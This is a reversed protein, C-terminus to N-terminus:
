GDLLQNLMRRYGRLAGRLEETSRGADDAASGPASPAWSERLSARAASVAEAFQANAQELLADAEEVSHRPDDVFGIQVAQWRTRLKEAASDPLFRAVGPAADPEPEPRGATPASDPGTVSDPGAVSDPGTVSDPGAVSDTATVSDPGTVSDTAAVPEPSEDGWRARDKLDDGQEAFRRDSM